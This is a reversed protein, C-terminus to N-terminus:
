TERPRELEEEKVRSSRLDQRSGQHRTCASRESEKGEFQIVEGNFRCVVCRAIAILFSNREIM